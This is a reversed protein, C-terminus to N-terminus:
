KLSRKMCISTDMGIYQGYNETITYGLKKYLAIAEHQKTGTELVATTYGSEIAWTELEKLIASAIGKGRQDVAVFMRKIEVSTEDFAKFAGCGVPVHDNYVVVVTELDPVKNYQDYVAQREEYRSTLDKDLEAVLIKFDPDNSTTRKIIMSGVTQVQKCENEM